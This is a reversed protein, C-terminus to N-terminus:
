EKAFDSLNFTFNELKKKWRHRKRDNSWWSLDYIAWSNCLKYCYESDIAATEYDNFRRKCFMERNDLTCFKVLIFALSSFISCDWSVSEALSSNHRGFTQLLRFNDNFIFTHRYMQM